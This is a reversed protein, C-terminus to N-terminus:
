ERLTKVSTKTQENLPLVICAHGFHFVMCATDLSFDQCVSLLLSISLLRILDMTQCLLVFLNSCNSLIAVDFMILCVINGNCRSQVGKIISLYGVWSNKSIESSVNWACHQKSFSSHFYGLYTSIQSTSNSM